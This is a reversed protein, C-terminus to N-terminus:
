KNGCVSEGLFQCVNWKSNRMTKKFRFRAEGLSSTSQGRAIEPEAELKFTWTSEFQYDNFNPVINVGITRPLIRQFHQIIERSGDESPPLPVAFFADGSPELSNMTLSRFPGMLKGLNMRDISSGLLMRERIPIVVPSLELTSSAPLNQSRVRMAIQCKQPHDSYDIKMEFYLEPNNTIPVQLMAVPVPSSNCFIQKLALNRDQQDETSTRALYDTRLKADVEDFFVSLILDKAESLGGVIKHQLLNSTTELNRTVRRVGKEQTTLLAEFRRINVDQTERQKELVSRFGDANEQRAKIVENQSQLLAARNDRAETAAESERKESARDIQIGVIIYILALATFILYAIWKRRHHMQEGVFSSLVILIGGLIEFWYRAHM